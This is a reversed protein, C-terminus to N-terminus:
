CGGEGRLLLGGNCTPGGGGAAQIDTASIITSVSNSGIVVSAAGNDYNAYANIVSGTTNDFFIKTGSIIAGAGPNGGALVLNGTSSSITVTQNGSIANATHPFSTAGGTQNVGTWVCAETFIPLSSSTTITITKNTGPTPNILAWTEINSGPISLGPNVVSLAQNAGAADWTATSVTTASSGGDFLVQLTLAINTGASVTVNTFAFTTNATFYRGTTSGVAPTCSQVGVAAIAQSCGLILFAFIRVLNLM